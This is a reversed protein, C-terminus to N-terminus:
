KCCLFGDILGAAGTTLTYTTCSNCTPCSAEPEAYNEGSYGATCVGTTSLNAGRWMVTNSTGFDEVAVWESDYGCGSHGHAIMEVKSCLRAGLEECRAKAGAWTDITTDTDEGPGRCTEDICFRGFKSFGAPCGWEIHGNVDLAATPTATGIGVRGLDDVVVVPAPATSAWRLETIGATSTSATVLRLQWHRHSAVSPWVFDNWGAALPAVSAAARTWALTDDSYWVEFVGDYAAASMHLGVGIVEIAGTAGLDFQLVSGTAAGTTDWAIITTDADFLEAVNLTASTGTSTATAGSLDVLASGGRDSDIHFREDTGPTGHIGIATGVILTEGTLDEVPHGHVHSHDAWAVQATGTGGMPLRATGLVGTTAVDNLKDVIMDGTLTPLTLTVNAQTEGAVNLAVLTYAGDAVDAPLYIDASTDTQNAVVIAIPSNTGDLLEFSADALFTGNIILGNRVTNSDVPDNGIILDLTPLSGIEPAGCIGEPRCIEDVPCDARTTCLKACVSAQCVLGGACQGTTTCASGVPLDTTPQVDGGTCAAAALLLVASPIRLAHPM